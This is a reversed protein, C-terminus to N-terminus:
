SAGGLAELAIEKALRLSRAQSVVLVGDVFVNYGKATKFRARHGWGPATKYQWTCQHLRVRGDESTYVKFGHRTEVKYRPPKPAANPCKGGTRELVEGPHWQGCSPCELPIDEVVADTSM